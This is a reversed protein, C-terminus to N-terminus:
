MNHYKQSQDKLRLIKWIKEWGQETETVYGHFTARSWLLHHCFWRLHYMSWQSTKISVPPRGLWINGWRAERVSSSCLSQFSGRGRLQAEWGKELGSMMNLFSMKAVQMWLRTREPVVVVVWLKIGYVLTPLYLNFLFNLVFCYDTSTQRWWSLAYMVRM